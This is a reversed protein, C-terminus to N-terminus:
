VLKYLAIAVLTYIALQIALNKSVYKTFLRRMPTLHLLYLVYLAKGLLQALRTNLLRSLWMEENILGLLLLAVPFPISFL